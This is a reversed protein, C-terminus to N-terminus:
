TGSRAKKNYGKQLKQHYKCFVIGSVAKEKCRVCIGKAKRESYSSRREKNLKEQHLYYHKLFRNAYKKEKKFKKLFKKIMKSMSSL